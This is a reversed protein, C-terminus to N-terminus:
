SRLIGAVKVRKAAEALYHERREPYADANALNERREAELMALMHSNWVASHNNQAIRCAEIARAQAEQAQQLTERSRAEAERLLILIPALSATAQTAAQQNSM